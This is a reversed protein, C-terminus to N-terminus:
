KTELSIELCGIHLYIPDNLFSKIIDAHSQLVAILNKSTTNGIRLWIVKPPHGYLTVFDYFDADFTVIAYHAQKAFDWIERDSKNELKLNRVQECYPFLTRLQQSVKFSINQDFLLKV